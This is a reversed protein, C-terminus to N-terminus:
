RALEAQRVEPTEARLSEASEAGRGVPWIHFHGKDDAARPWYRIVWRGWIGNDDIYGDYEVQYDAYKKAMSCRGTLADYRGTVAFPGGGDSGGGLVEGSRFTLGLDQRGRSGWQIYFGEWPGSPLRGDTELDTIETDPTPRM